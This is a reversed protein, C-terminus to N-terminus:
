LPRLKRLTMQGAGEREGALVSPADMTIEFSYRTGYYNWHLRYYHPVLPPGGKSPAVKVLLPDSQPLRVEARQKQANISRLM